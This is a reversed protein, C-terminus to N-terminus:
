LHLGLIVNLYLAIICLDDLALFNFGHLLAVEECHICIDGEQHSDLIEVNVLRNKRELHDFRIDRLM